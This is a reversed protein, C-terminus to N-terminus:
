EARLNDEPTSGSKSKLFLRLALLEAYSQSFVYQVDRNTPSVFVGTILPMDAEQSLNAILNAAGSHYLYDDGDLFYVTVSSRNGYQSAPPSVVNIDYIEKETGPIRM